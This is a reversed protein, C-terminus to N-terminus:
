KSTSPILYTICMALAMKKGRPMWFAAPRRTTTSARTTAGATPPLSCAPWTTCSAMRPRGKPIENVILAQGIADKFPGTPRDSVAVSIAAGGQSHADKKHFTSVFWYFKGQHYVCQAAYADGTAWAFTRPSLRTGYAKWHVMDTTSYIRWDPMKYNTKRVSATDPGTYLFLPDRYVLPAPDATFVDQIIPNQARLGPGALLVFAAFLLYSM